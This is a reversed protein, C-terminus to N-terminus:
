ENQQKIIRKCKKTYLIEGTSIPWYVNRQLKMKMVNQSLKIYQMIARRCYGSIWLRTLENRMFIHNRAQTCMITTQLRHAQLVVTLYNKYSGLWVLLTDSYSGFHVVLDRTGM